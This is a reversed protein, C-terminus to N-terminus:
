THRRPPVPSPTPPHAGGPPHAAGGGAPANLADEDIFKDISSHMVGCRDIIQQLMNRVIQVKRDWTADRADRPLNGEAHHAHIEMGEIYAICRSMFERKEEKSKMKAARFIRRASKLNHKIRGIRHKANILASETHNGLSDRADEANQEAKIIFGKAPHLLRERMKAEADKKAQEKKQEGKEKESALWGKIKELGEGTPEPAKETGMIFRVAYYIILVAVIWLAYDVFSLATSAVLDSIIGM